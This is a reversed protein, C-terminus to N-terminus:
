RGPLLECAIVLGHEDSDHPLAVAVVIVGKFKGIGLAFERGGRHRFGDLM